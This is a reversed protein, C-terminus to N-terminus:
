DGDSRRAHECMGILPCSACRPKGRCYQKGLEVMLAHFEQYTKLDKPIIREFYFKIDDYEELDFLGLRRGIRRTYADVVFSLKDSAYCLISDATEPGVGDLSLLEERLSEAPKSLFSDVDGYAEDIYSAMRKLWVPKTRHFGCSATLSVVKGLDAHAIAEPSLLDARKLNEISKEVNTWATQQTLIAGVIVEFATDAPWWDQPGLDELLRDYIEMLRHM